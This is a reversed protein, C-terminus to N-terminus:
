IFCKSFLFYFFSDVLFHYNWFTEGRYINILKGFIETINRNLDPPSYVLSSGSTAVQYAFHYFYEIVALLFLAFFQRSQWSLKTVGRGPPHNAELSLYLIVFPAHM